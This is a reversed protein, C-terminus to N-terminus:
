QRAGKSALWFGAVILGIGAVALATYPAAHLLALQYPGDLNAASFMTILIWCGVFITVAGAYKTIM